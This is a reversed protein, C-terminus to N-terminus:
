HQIIIHQTTLQYTITIMFIAVLLLAALRLRKRNILIGYGSRSYIPSVLESATLLFVSMVAAWISLNGVSLPLIPLFVGPNPLSSSLPKVNPAGSLDRYLITWGVSQATAETALDLSVGARGTANYALDLSNYGVVDLLTVENPLNVTFREPIPHIDNL